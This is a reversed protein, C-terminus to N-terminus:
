ATRTKVIGILAPEKAVAGDSFHSYFDLTHSQYNYEVGSAVTATNYVYDIARSLDGFIAADSANSAHEVATQGPMSDSSVVRNGSIRAGAQNIQGLNAFIPTGNTNVIGQWIDLAEQSLALVRADGGKIKAKLDQWGKYTAGSLNVAAGLGLSVAGSAGTASAVIVDDRHKSIAETISRQITGVFDGTVMVNEYAALATVSQDVLNLTFSEYTPERATLLTATFQDTAQTRASVTARKVLQGKYTNSNVTTIGVENTLGWMEAQDTFSFAVIYDMISAGSGKSGTGTTLARVNMSNLTDMFDMTKGSRKADSRLETMRDIMDSLGESTRISNRASRMTSFEGYLEKNIEGYTWSRGNYKVSSNLPAARTARDKRIEAIRSKIDTSRPSIEEKPEEEEGGANDEEQAKVEEPNDTTETNRTEDTEEEKEDETDTEEAKVETEEEPKDAIETNRNEDNEAKDEEKEDTEQASVEDEKVEMDIASRVADVFYYKKEDSLDGKKFSRVFSVAERKSMGDGYAAVARHAFDMDDKTATDETISRVLAVAEDTIFNKNKIKDM